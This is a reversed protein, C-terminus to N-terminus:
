MYGEGIDYESGAEYLNLIKHKRNYSIKNILHDSDYLVKLKVGIDELEKIPDIKGGKCNYTLDGYDITKGYINHKPIKMEIKEIGVILGDANTWGIKKNLSEDILKNFLTSIHQCYSISSNM